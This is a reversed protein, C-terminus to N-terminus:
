GTIDIQPKQDNSEDKPLNNKSEHEAKGQESDNTPLDHIAEATELGKIRLEVLDDDRQTRTEESRKRDRAKSAVQQAQAAQIVSAASPSGISSM